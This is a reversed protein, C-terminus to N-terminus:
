IKHLLTIVWGDNRRDFEKEPLRAKLKSHYLLHSANTLWFLDAIPVSCGGRCWWDDTVVTVVLVPYGNGLDDTRRWWYCHCVVTVVTVLSWVKADFMVFLWKAKKYQSRACPMCFHSMRCHKRSFSKSIFDNEMLGLTHSLPLSLPLSLSRLYYIFMAIVRTCCLIWWYLKFLSSSFNWLTRGKNLRLEDYSDRGM